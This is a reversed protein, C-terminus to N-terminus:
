RSSSSLSDPSYRVRVCHCAQMTQVFSPSHGGAQLFASEDFHLAFEPVALELRMTGVGFDTSGLNVYDRDECQVAAFFGVSILGRLPITSRRHSETRFGESPTWRM